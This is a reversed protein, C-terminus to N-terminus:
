PATVLFVISATSVQTRCFTTIKTEWLHFTVSVMQELTQINIAKQRGM